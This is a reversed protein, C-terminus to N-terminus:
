KILSEKLKHDEALDTTWIQNCEYCCSLIYEARDRTSRTVTGSKADLLVLAAFQRFAYGHSNNTCQLMCYQVATTLITASLYKEGVAYLLSGKTTLFHINLSDAYSGNYKQIRGELTNCLQRAKEYRQESCYRDVRHIDTIISYV